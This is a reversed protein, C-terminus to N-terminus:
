TVGMRSICIRMALVYPVLGNHRKQADDRVPGYVWGQARRAEAWIEHTNEALLEVLQRLDRPLVIEKSPFPLPAYTEGSAVAQGFVWPRAATSGARDM